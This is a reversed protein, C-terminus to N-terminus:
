RVTAVQAPWQPCSPEDPCRMAVPAGRTIRVLEAREGHGLRLEALDFLGDLIYVTGSADVRYNVLEPGNSTILRLLPASVATLYSPFVIYTKGRQDSIVQRPNWSPPQGQVPGWRYGGYLTQPQQPDPLLRPKAKAQVVPTDYTWRVMRIKSSQVSQLDVLYVRRTTLITMGQTQGPHICQVSVHARRPTHSESELITWPGSEEGPMVVARDQIVKNIEEGPELMLLVAAKMPVKVKYVTGEEYHAVQEVATPPREPMSVPAPEELLPQPASWGMEAPIPASTVVPHSTACGALLPLGILWSLSHRM